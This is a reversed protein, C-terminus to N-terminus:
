KLECTKTYTYPLAGATTEKRSYSQCANLADKKKSNGYMEVYSYSTYGPEDSTTTCSCTRDKRCSAFALSLIAISLITKKM